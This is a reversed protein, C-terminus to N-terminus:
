FTIKKVDELDVEYLEGEIEVTIEGSDDVSVPRIPEEPNKALGKVIDTEIYGDSNICNIIDEITINKQKFDEFCKIYKPTFM